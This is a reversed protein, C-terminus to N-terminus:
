RAGFWGSKRTTFSKSSTASRFCCEPQRQREAAAKGTRAAHQCRGSVDRLAKLREGPKMDFHPVAAM